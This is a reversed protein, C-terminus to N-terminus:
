LKKAPTTYMVAGAAVNRMVTAGAGIRCDDGIKVRPLV